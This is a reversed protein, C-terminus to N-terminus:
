LLQENRQNFVKHAAKKLAQKGFWYNVQGVVERRPGVPFPDIFRQTFKVLVNCSIGSFLPQNNRKLLIFVFKYYEGILM